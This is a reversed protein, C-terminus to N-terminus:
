YVSVRLGTIQVKCKTERSNLFSSSSPYLESAIMQARTFDFVVLQNLEYQRSDLKWGSVTRRKEPMPQYKHGCIFWFNSIVQMENM